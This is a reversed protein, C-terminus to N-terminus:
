SKQTRTVVESVIAFVVAWVVVSSFLGFLMLAPTWTGFPSNLVESLVLIPFM